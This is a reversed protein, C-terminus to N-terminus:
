AGTAGANRTRWARTGVIAAGVVAILAFAFWQVAYSLHPGDNLAPRELRVPASAGASDEAVLYVHALPYPLLAQLAAHSVVRVRRGDPNMGRMSSDPALPMVFGSWSTRSERWRELDASAADPAYVWGRNVLIATDSDARRVPTLIHVGPSGNRSRGIHLIERAHDPTGTLLVRRFATDGPLEGYPIAPLALQSAVAANVTKREALRDLQWVGLRVFLAALAAALALFVVYRFSM